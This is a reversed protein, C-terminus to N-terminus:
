ILCIDKESGMIINDKKLVYLERDNECRVFVVPLVEVDEYECPQWLDLLFYGHESDSIYTDSTIIVKKAGVRFITNKELTM